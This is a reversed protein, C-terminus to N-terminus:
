RDAALGRNRRTSASVAPPLSPEGLRRLSEFRRSAYVLRHLGTETRFLDEARGQSRVSENRVLGALHLYTAVLPFLALNLASIAGPVRSAAPPSEETVRDRYLRPIERGMWPAGGLLWRYYEGGFVPRATLAERAFVFGRGEQFRRPAVSEELVFNLCVRPRVFPSPRRKRLRLALYAYTLFLWLAGTRTVVFLDIDDGEDPEGYAVSGSVAACRLWSRAGSLEEEFLSRAIELYRAGRERRTRLDRSRGGRAFVRGDELRGVESHEEVWIRMETATAPAGPPLLNAIEELPVGTDFRGATEVLSHVRRGLPMGDIMARSETAPSAPVVPREAAGPTPEIRKWHVHDRPPPLRDWLALGRSVVEGVAIRALDRVGRPERVMESVVRVAARPRRLFYRPLTDPPEGLLGTVQANGVHIRRRQRVHDGFSRPIDVEVVADPAYWCGGGKQELWVGLYSGDNIVGPPPVPFEPGSLLLLEDCLHSGRGDALLELHYRHHLEWMWRLSDSWSGATSPSVTPRGMIAFPAPRFSAASLLALVAHPDAIADANLLVLGDGRARRAIEGLAAAKGRREREVVLGVRSDERALTTAVEVTRDTCGSAVVWVREWGLPPPLRQNLLSRVSRELRREENHAVIGGTITRFRVVGEPAPSSRGGPGSDVRVPIPTEPRNWAPGPGVGGAEYFAPSPRRSAVSGSEGAPAPASPQRM